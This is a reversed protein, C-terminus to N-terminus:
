TGFIRHACVCFAHGLYVIREFVHANAIHSQFKISVTAMLHEILNVPFFHEVIDNGPQILVFLFNM